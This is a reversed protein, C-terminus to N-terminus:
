LDKSRASKKRAAQQSPPGIPCPAVGRKIEAEAAPLSRDGEARVAAAALAGHERARGELAALSQDREELQRTLSEVTQRSQRLAEELIAVRSDREERAPASAAASSPAAPLAQAKACAMQMIGFLARLQMEDLGFVGAYHEYVPHKMWRIFVDQACAGGPVEVSRPVEVPVTKEPTHM